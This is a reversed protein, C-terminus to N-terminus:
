SRIVRLYEEPTVEGRKLKQRCRDAMSKMKNVKLIEDRSKDEGILRRTEATVHFIEFIGTRGRNGTGYCADCGTGRYLKTTAKTLGVSKLLTAAPEFSKRCNPCTLRVLRQGLVATLASSVLYPAVGMNHLTGLAELADNTHLTSFVLHGTMAARVAIQATEADRIEGVLLVDIDQRLSARLVTAFTMGIEPEIQVQNIGSLQYEVPDELTVISDTMVNKHNLMAYLTTTKGSGTPGTVLVMGYPEEVIRTVKKEDDSELGLDKIGGLVASQDLLRLVVREGIVTPLTAVRVDFEREGIDMGIHGDQPHRTNTIDLDSMIKIRSVVAGELNVPISMVDHLIGDIRYRVRTEPDQPDLHIDTAGANAAGELITSVMKVVSLGSAQRAIEEFRMGQEEVSEGADQEETNTMPSPEKINTIATTPPADPLPADHAVKKLTPRKEHETTDGHAVRNARYRAVIAADMDEVATMMAHIRRGLLVGVDDLRARIQPDAILVTLRDGEISVPLFLNRRAMTEPVLELAATESPSDAARAFELKHQLALARAIHDRTVYNNELLIKGLLRGNRKQEKLADNLAEPTLAGLEVLRTGLTEHAARKSKSHFEFRLVDEVAGFSIKGTHILQRYWPTGSRAEHERAQDLDERTILERKVLEEGAQDVDKSEAM